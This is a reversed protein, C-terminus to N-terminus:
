KADETAEDIEDQEAPPEDKWSGHPSGKEEDEPDIEPDVPQPEITM